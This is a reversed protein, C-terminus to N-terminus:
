LQFIILDPTTVSGGSSRSGNSSQMKFALALAASAWGSGTTTGHLAPSASLLLLLLLPTYPVVHSKICPLCVLAQQKGDSHNNEEERQKNAAEVQNNVRNGAVAAEALLSRSPPPVDAERNNVGDSWDGPFSNHQQVRSRREPYIVRQVAVCVFPETQRERKSKQICIERRVNHYHCRNWKEWVSSNGWIRHNCVANSDNLAWHTYHNLEQQAKIAAEHSNKCSHAVCELTCVTRWKVTNLATHLFQSFMENKQSTILSSFYRNKIARLFQM